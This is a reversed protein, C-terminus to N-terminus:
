NQGASFGKLSKALSTIDWEEETGPFCYKEWNKIESIDMVDMHVMQRERMVTFGISSLHTKDEPPFLMVSTKDPSIGLYTRNTKKAYNSKLGNRIRKIMLEMKWMAISAPIPGFAVSHMRRPKDGQEPFDQLLVLHVDGTHNYKSPNNDPYVIKGFKENKGVSSIFEGFIKSIFAEFAEGSLAEGSSDKSAGNKSSNEIIKRIGESISDFDKGIDNLKDKKGKRGKNNDDSM